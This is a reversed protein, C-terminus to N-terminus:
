RPRPPMPGMPADPIENNPWRAAVLDRIKDEDHRAAAIAVEEAWTMSTSATKQFVEIKPLQMAEYRELAREVSKEGALASQLATADDFAFMTGFGQSFHTTHAADGLLVTKEHCLRQCSIAAFADWRLAGRHMVSGGGLETEFAKAITDCAEQPPLRALGTDDLTATTCEVIFTSLSKTYRYAWALLPVDGDELL